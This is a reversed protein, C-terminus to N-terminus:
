VFEVVPPGAREIIEGVDHVQEGTKEVATRVADVGDAAVVILMGLGVNFTRRMEAREVGGWKAVDAFIKPEPWRGEHLRMSLGDRLVRPPNEVLGGGTIHACAHVAGARAAIAARVARVYIKTPTLLAPGVEALAVGAQEAARRALSYGNSHLGSSSLGLVRDGARVLSGDLIADKEVVGVAFGALDYEGDAYMGPLEATEGGVLACGAQRCGEAIGSIVAEGVAVDLKGSAFYDLFFLPEAGSVVIDNVCMAVLDIGITDHKGTAFAVKLKTGVGDTGSVLVPERYGAPIKCLAGFGGLGGIVEPRLTRKVLPGIRDVLADGADIDVGSDRYTLPRRPADSMGLLTRVAREITL